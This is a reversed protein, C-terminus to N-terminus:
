RRCWLAIHKLPEPNIFQFWDSECFPLRFAKGRGLALLPWYITTGDRLESTIVSEKHLKMNTELIPLLWDLKDYEESPRPVFFENNNASIVTDSTLSRVWGPHPLFHISFRSDSFPLSLGSGKMLSM